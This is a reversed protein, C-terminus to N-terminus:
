VCAFASLASYNVGIHFPFKEVPGGLGWGLDILGSVRPSLKTITIPQAKLFMSRYM